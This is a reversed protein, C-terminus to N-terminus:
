GDGAHMTMYISTSGDVLASEVLQSVKFNEIKFQSGRLSAGKIQRRVLRKEKPASVIFFLLPIGDANKM